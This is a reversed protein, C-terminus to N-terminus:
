ILDIISLNIWRRALITEESYISPRQAELVPPGHPIFNATPFRVQLSGCFHYLSEDGAKLHNTNTAVDLSNPSRDKAKQSPTTTSTTTQLPPMPQWVGVDTGNGFAQIANGVSLGSVTNSMLTTSLPLSLFDMHPSVVDTWFRFSKM